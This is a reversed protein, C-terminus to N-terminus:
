TLDMCPRYPALVCSVHVDLHRWVLSMDLTPAHAAPMGYSEPQCQSLVSNCQELCATLAVGPDSPPLMLMLQFPIVLLLIIGQHRSCSTLDSHVGVEALLLHCYMRLTELLDKDTAM